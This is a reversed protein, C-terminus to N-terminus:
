SNKGVFLYAFEEPHWGTELTSGDKHHISWEGNSWRILEYGNELYASGRDRAVEIKNSFQKRTM